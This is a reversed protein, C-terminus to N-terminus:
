HALRKWSAGFKFEAPLSLFLGLHVSCHTGSQELILALCRSHLLFGIGMYIGIESCCCALGLDLAGQIHCACIADPPSPALGSEKIWVDAGGRKGVTQIPHARTNAPFKPKCGSAHPPPRPDSGRISRSYDPAELESM